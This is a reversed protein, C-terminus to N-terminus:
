PTAGIDYVAIVLDKSPNTRSHGVYLRNNEPDYFGGTITGTTKGYPDDMIWRSDDFVGRQYPRIASPNTTTASLIEDTDFAWFWAVNDERVIPAEGYSPTFGDIDAYMAKYGIGFQSGANTGLVLYTTTNPIVFGFKAFTGRTWLDNQLNGPVPSNAEANELAAMREAKTTLNGIFSEDSANDLVWNTPDSIPTSYKGNADMVASVGTLNRYVNNDKLDRTLDGINFNIQRKFHVYDYMPYSLVDMYHNLTAENFSDWDANEGYEYKAPRIYDGTAMTQASNWGMKETTNLISSTTTLNGPNSVFFSPGDSFRSSISMGAGNGSVHTAGFKSQYNSPLESMWSINRDRGELDIWDSVACNALDTVDDFLVMKNAGPGNAAYNKYTGVLLKGNVHQILGINKNGDLNESARSEMNVYGQLNPAIPLSNPNTETISGLTEPIQFEAIALPASDVENSDTVFSGYSGNSGNPPVFGISGRHYNSDSVADSYEVRFAGLYTLNSIDYAETPTGTGGTGGSDSGGGCATFLCTALLLSSRLCIKTFSMDTDEHYPM